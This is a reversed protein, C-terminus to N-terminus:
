TFRMRVTISFLCKFNKKITNTTKTNYRTEIREIVLFSLFGVSQSVGQKRGASARIVLTHMIVVQKEM